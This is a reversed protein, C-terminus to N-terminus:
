SNWAFCLLGLLTLIFYVALTAAGEYNKAMRQGFFLLLISFASFSVGVFAWLHLGTIFLQLAGAACFAGALVELITITVTAITIFKKLPTNIFQGRIYSLNGEYDFVKDLGSQLFLIALFLCVLIQIFLFVFNPYYISKFFYISHM